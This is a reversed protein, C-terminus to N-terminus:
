GFFTLLQRINRWHLQKRGTYSNSESGYSRMGDSDGRYSEDGNSKGGYSVVVFDIM